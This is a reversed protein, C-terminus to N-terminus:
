DINRLVRFKRQKKANTTNYENCKKTIRRKKRVSHTQFKELGKKNLREITILRSPVM